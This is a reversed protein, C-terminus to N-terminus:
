GREAWAELLAKLTLLDTRVWEVESELREDSLGPRQFYTFHLDCGAGNPIVRMPVLLSEEGARSVEYDLVGLANPACFKITVPGRPDGPMPAMWIREALQQFHPGAATTWSPMNAPQVLYAYVDAM